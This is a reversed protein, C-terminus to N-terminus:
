DLVVTNDSYAYFSRVNLTNLANKINQALNASVQTAIFKLRPITRNRKALSSTSTLLGQMINNPQYIIAYAEICVGNISADSFPHIAINTVTERISISRPFEIKINLDKVWKM